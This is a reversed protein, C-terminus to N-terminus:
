LDLVIALVASTVVAALSLGVLGIDVADARHISHLLADNRQQDALWVNLSTTGMGASLRRDEQQWSDYRDQNWWYVGGAALGFGVGTALLM